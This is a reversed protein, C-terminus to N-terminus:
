RPAGVGAEIESPPSVLEGALALAGSPPAPPTPNGDRYHATVRFRGRRALDHCRALDVLFPKSAGPGLTEYRDAPATGARIKCTFAAPKGDDGVVDLWIERYAEPAFPSNVLGRANWWVTSPGDNRVNVVIELGSGPAPTVDIRM